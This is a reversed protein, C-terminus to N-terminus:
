NIELRKFHLFVCSVRRGNVSCENEGIYLVRANLFSLHESSSHRTWQRSSVCVTINQEDHSEGSANHHHVKTSTSSVNRM